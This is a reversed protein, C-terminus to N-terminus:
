RPEQLPYSHIPGLRGAKDPVLIGRRTLKDIVPRSVANPLDIRAPLPTHGFERRNREDGRWDLRASGDPRRRYVPNLFLPARAFRYAAPALPDGGPLAIDLSYAGPDLAGDAPGFLADPRAGSWYRVLLDRETAHRVGAGPLVAGVLDRADGPAIPSGPVTERGLDRPDHVHVLFIRGGPRVVRGLERLLEGKGDVYHFADTMVAVDFDHDALPLPDDLEVCAADARPVLYARAALLHLLNGDLLTVAARPTVADLLGAMHGVGSAVCLVRRGALWPLLALTCLHSPCAWRIAFYHTDGGTCGCWDALFDGAGQDPDIVRTLRDIRWGQSEGWDRLWDLVAERGGELIAAIQADLERASRARLQLTPIGDIQPYVAACCRTLRTGPRRAIRGGCSPCRWGARM